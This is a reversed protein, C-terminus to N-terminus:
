ETPIMKEIQALEKDTILKAKHMAKSFEFVAQMGSVAFQKQLEVKYSKMRTQYKTLLEIAISAPRRGATALIEPEPNNKRRPSVYEELQPIEGTSKKVPKIPDAKRVKGDAGARKDLQPIEGTSELRSRVVGVTKHDAGSKKAIIRDSQVPDNKLFMEVIKYKQERTMHRRALNDMIALERREKAPVEMVECPIFSWDLEQAIHWRNFGGLILPNGEKDFYIKVPDRIEGSKEIDKKLRERDETSIPLFSQVELLEPSPQLEATSIPRISKAKFQKQTM